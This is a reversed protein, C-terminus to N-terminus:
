VGAGDDAAGDDGDAAGTDAADAAPAAEETAPEAKAKAPRGRKRPAEQAAGEGAEGEITGAGIAALNEAYATEIVVPAGPVCLRNGPKRDLYYRGDILLAARANFISYAM